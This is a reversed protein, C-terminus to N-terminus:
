GGGGGMSPAGGGHGASSRTFSEDVEARVAIGHPALAETLDHLTTAFPVRGTATRVEGGPLTLRLHVGTEDPEIPRGRRAAREVAGKSFANYAIERVVVVDDLDSLPLARVKRVWTLRLRETAPDIEVRRIEAPGFTALLVGLGTLTIIGYALYRVLAPWDDPAHIAVLVVITMGVAGTALRSLLFLALATFTGSRRLRIDVSM